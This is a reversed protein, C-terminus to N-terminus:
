YPMRGSLWRIAKMKVEEKKVKAKSERERNAEEERPPILVCLYNCTSVHIILNIHIVRARWDNKSFEHKRRKKPPMGCQAVHLVAGLELRGKVKGWFFPSRVETKKIYPLQFFNQFKMRLATYLVWYLRQQNEEKESVRQLLSLTSQIWVRKLKSIRFHSGCRNAKTDHTGNWFLLM